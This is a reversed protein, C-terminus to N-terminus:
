FFYHLRAGLTRPRLTNIYSLSSGAGGNLIYDDNNTLNEGYLTFEWDGTILGLSADVNEYAENEALFPNPELSGAQNSFGNPSSDVFQAALRSYMQMGNALPWNYQVATAVMYDVSGPLTDGEVVGSRISDADNISDIEADQLAFSLDIVLGELPTLQMELEVGKSIAEGANAIYNAVDSLRIADVQIDQWEIYYASLNLRLRQDWLLTKAGVEYNLTEDPEYVNPIVLPDDPDVPSSGVFPNTQGIRYGTSVSAYFHMTDEPEYSLQTRWTTIGNDEGENDFSMAEPEFTAFNLVERRPEHISVETNAVRVGAGFNWQENFRIKVDAFAALEESRTTTRTVLFADSPPLDPGLIPNFYDALGVLQFDFDAVSEREIYFAGVVWDYRSVTNSVLRLEQAFFDIEWPENRAQLPFGLGTIDGYDIRVATESELYNSTSVLDAFDSVVYDLTLNYSRIESPRGEALSSSKKFQGLAPDWSDGDEPESDQYLVEATASFAGEPQWRLSFRGGKDVTSNDTGLLVNDVWGPEDRYYAVARLALSDDVLPVNVMADYRQRLGAGETSGLDARMSADFASPDPKNTIIRVTGALSGSGFLTGQPGRLVEVREVDYLRLDPQVSAGFTDTVPMDNIYVAVPDQTNGGAVNTSIGRINFVARNKIPQNLTVGPLARAVGAFDDLGLREIDAETLASVSAAVAQLDESRKNATVLVEELAPYEVVQAYVSASGLPLALALGAAMASLTFVRNNGLSSQVKSIM